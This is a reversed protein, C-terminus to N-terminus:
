SRKNSRCCNGSLVCCRRCHFQTPLHNRRHDLANMEGASVEQERIQEELNQMRADDERWERQQGVDELEKNPDDQEESSGTFPESSQRSHSESVGSDSREVPLGCLSILFATGIILYILDTKGIGDYTKLFQKELRREEEILAAMDPPPAISLKLALEDDDQASEIGLFSSRKNRIDKKIRKTSNMRRLNEEPTEMEEAMSEDDLPEEEEEESEVESEAPPPPPKMKPPELHVGAPITSLLQGQNTDNVSALFIDVNEYLPIPKRNPPMEYHPEGTVGVKDKSKGPSKLASKLPKPQSVDEIIEYIPEATTSPVSRQGEVQDVTSQVHDVPASHVHGDGDVTQEEVQTAAADGAENTQKILDDIFQEIDQDNDMANNSANSRDGGVLQDFNTTAPSLSTSTTTSTLTSAAAAVPASPPRKSPAASSPVNSCDIEQAGVDDDKDIAEFAIDLAELVQDSNNSLVCSSRLYSIM